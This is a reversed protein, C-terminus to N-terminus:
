KKPQRKLLKELCSESIKEGGCLYSLLLPTSHCVKMFCVTTNVKFYEQSCMNSFYYLPERLYLESRCYARGEKTEEELYPQAGVTNGLSVELKHNEQKLRGFAPILWIGTQIVCLGLSVLIANKWLLKIQM